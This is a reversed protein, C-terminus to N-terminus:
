KLSFSIPLEGTAGCWASGYWCCSRRHRRLNVGKWDAALVRNAALPPETSDLLWCKILITDFLTFTGFSKGVPDVLTSKPRIVYCAQGPVVRGEEWGAATQGKEPALLSEVRSTFRDYFGPSFGMAYPWPLPASRTKVYAHVLDPATGCIM